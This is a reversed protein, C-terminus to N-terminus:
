RKRGLDSFDDDTNTNQTDTSWDVLQSDDVAIEKNAGWGSEIATETEHEAETPTRRTRAPTAVPAPVVPAPASAQPRRAAQGIRGIGGVGTASQRFRQPPTRTRSPKDDQELETIVDSIAAVPPIAPGIPVAAGSAAVATPAIVVAEPPPAIVRAPPAPIPKTASTSTAAAAVPKAAEIPKGLSQAAIDAICAWIVHSPVHECLNPVGITEVVLQADVKPAGLCATILRAWLPRPLSQALVDPTCHRTVDEPKGIGLELASSLADVFFSKINM